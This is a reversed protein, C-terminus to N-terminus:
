NLDIKIKYLGTDISKELDCGSYPTAIMFGLSEEHVKLSDGRKLLSNKEIIKGNEFYYNIIFLSDHESKELTLTFTTSKEFEYVDYPRNLKACYSLQLPYEVKRFLDSTSSTIAINEHNYMYYNKTDVTKEITYLNEDGVKNLVANTIEVISNSNNIKKQNIDHKHNELLYNYIDLAYKFSLDPGPHWDFPNIYLDKNNTNVLLAYTEQMKVLNINQKKFQEYPYKLNLNTPPETNAIIINETGFKKKLGKLAMTFLKRDAIEAKKDRIKETLEKDCFYKTIVEKSLDYRKPIVSVVTKFINDGYLCNIYKSSEAVSLDTRYDNSLFGIIVIDPKIIDYYRDLVELYSYFSGSKAISFIEYKNLNENESMMDKLISHYNLNYREQGFGAVFSDGILLIKKNNKNNIDGTYNIKYQGETKYNIFGGLNIHNLTNKNSTKNEIYMLERLWKEENSSQTFQSDLDSELLKYNTDKNLSNQANSTISGAELVNKEFIRIKNLNYYEFIELFALGGLITVLLSITLKIRMTINNSIKM